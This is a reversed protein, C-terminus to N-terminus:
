PRAPVAAARPSAALLDRGEAAALKLGLRGALTPAIDRMDIRGFGHGAPVGPGAIFFCADMAPNEPLYGHEGEPLAPGMVPGEYRTGIRWERSLGVVFAAEPFGGEAAAQAGDLIRQIPSDPLGRLGELLEHVVARTAADGPDKLVIATSGGSGWAYAKWDTVRGRGDLLILGRARLAENLRLERTTRVHGHDSVVAFLASGGGSREAAARLRGVLADLEELVALAKPSGPWSLHQEEDLGSLYALHLRPRRTELIWESFAVRRRDAEVDYAYGSPYPGLAKEAEALLGPTSLLRSLKRDDPADPVDTRWYQVINWRIRAGATVPWDVSATALGAEAAADWLTPVRIDEAYWYWGDRNRELPDFPGNYFIGHRAPSVGTVMTTHSPYTVTPLVGKAGSSWAGDQVLRRLHPVKLGHREAELVHGPHLGDISVVVLPPPPPPRNAPRAAVLGAWVLALHIALLM